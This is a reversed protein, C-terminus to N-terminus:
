SATSLDKLRAVIAWLNVSRYLDITGAALTSLRVHHPQDRRQQEHPAVRPGGRRRSRLRVSGLFGGRRLISAGPEGIVAIVREVAHGARRDGIGGLLEPLELRPVPDLDRRDRGVAPDMEGGHLAAEERQVERALLDPLDRVLVREARGREQGVALDD